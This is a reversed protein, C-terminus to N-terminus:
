RSRMSSCQESHTMVSSSRIPPLSTHHQFQRTLVNKGQGVLALALGDQGVPLVPTDPVLCGFDPKAHVPEIQRAAAKEGGAPVLAVVEVRTATRM